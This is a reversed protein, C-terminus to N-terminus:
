SQDWTCTLHAFLFQKEITELFDVPGSSVDREGQELAM